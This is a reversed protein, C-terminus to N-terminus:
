MLWVVLRPGSDPVPDYLKRTSAPNLYPDLYVMTGGRIQGM